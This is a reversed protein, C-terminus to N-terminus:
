SVLTTPFMHDVSLVPRGDQTAWTDVQLTNSSCALLPKGSNHLFVYIRKGNLLTNHSANVSFVEHLRLSLSDIMDMCDHTVYM